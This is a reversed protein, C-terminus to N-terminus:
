TKNALTVEKTYLRDCHAAPRTELGCGHTCRHLEPHTVGSEQM